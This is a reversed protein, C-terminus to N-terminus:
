VATARRMLANSQVRTPLCTHELSPTGPEFGVVGMNKGFTKTARQRSKLFAGDFPCGEGHMVRNKM